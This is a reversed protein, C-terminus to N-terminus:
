HAKEFDGATFEHERNSYYSTGSFPTRRLHLPTKGMARGLAAIPTLVAFFVLSLLAFSVYKGLLEALGLWAVSIWYAAPKVFLGILLLALALHHLHMSGFLLGFVLCAAALVAVTEMRKVDSITPLKM